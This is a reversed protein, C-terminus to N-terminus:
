WRSARGGVKRLTARRVFGDRASTTWAYGFELGLALNEERFELQNGLLNKAVSRRLPYVGEYRGSFPEWLWTAGDSGTVRLVTVPGTNGANETLRDETGYPFLAREVSGRGCTLGGTSAIFLWHDADSAVTMFFPAMADVGSIVQWPEGGREEWAGTVVEVGPPVLANGGLMLPTGM